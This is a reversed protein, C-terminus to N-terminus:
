MAEAISDDLNQIGIIVLRDVHSLQSLCDSRHVGVIALLVIEAGEGEILLVEHCGRPYSSEVVQDDAHLLSLM